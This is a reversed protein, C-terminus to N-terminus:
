RVAGEPLNADVALCQYRIPALMGQQVRGKMQIAFNRCEAESAFPEEVMQSFGYEWPGDYDIADPPAAYVTVILLWLKM